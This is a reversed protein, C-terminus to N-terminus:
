VQRTFSRNFVPNRLNWFKQRVNMSPQGTWDLLINECHILCYAHFDVYWCSLGNLRDKLFSLPSTNLTYPICKQVHAFDFGPNQGILCNCFVHFHKNEFTKKYLKHGEIWVYDHEKHRVCILKDLDDKTYQDHGDKLDGGCGACKCVKGKIKILQFPTSKTLSVSHKASRSNRMTLCLDSTAVPWYEEPTVTNALADGLTNKCLGMSRMVDPLKKRQRTRRNPNNKGAAIKISFTTLATLHDQSRRTNKFWSVFQKLNNSYHAVAV